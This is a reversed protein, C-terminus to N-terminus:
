YTLKTRCPLFGGLVIVDYTNNGTKLLAEKGDFATDVTYQEIELAKKLSESIKKEDEVVLITM